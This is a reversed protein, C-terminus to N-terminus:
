LLAILLESKQLKEQYEAAFFQAPLLSFHLRTRGLGAIM